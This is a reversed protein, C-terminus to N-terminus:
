WRGALPAGNVIGFTVSFDAIGSANSNRLYFQGEAPRFIGVTDIGDGDWDGVVAMDDANGYVFVVDAIGSTNSNRLYFFNGRKIGITDAGDGDWDGVIPIDTPGGYIFTVDAVGSTNSNRLYYSNGRRIGITDTGNGDWDGVIPTDAADGYIFTIDAVGSTNSNRLYYTNGRKVGPTSTGDGDWDGMLPQDTDSGYLFQLDSTPEWRGNALKDLFWSLGTTVGLKDAGAGLYALMGGNAMGGTREHVSLIGAGTPQVLADFTKGAALELSYVQMFDPLLHGDNAVLTMYENQMVPVRSHIGANLFRLLTSQGAEAVAQPAPATTFPAGNVLFYTPESRMALATPFAATGYTGNAVANNLAPDIESFLLIAEDAYATAPNYAQGVAADVKVAAYLGMPVQVAPHTGSKLLYTGASLNGWQYSATGGAPAAEHTFSRVRKAVDTGRPGSTGDTWVPVMAGTETAQQGSIVLSVPEATPGALGNTLNIVLTDGAIAAIVPGPVTASGAPATALRMGWMPVVTADSMTKNVPEVVLDVTVIAALSHGSLALSLSLMLLLAKTRKMANM